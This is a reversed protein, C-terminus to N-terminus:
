VFSSSTLAPTLSRPTLFVIAGGRLERATVKFAPYHIVFETLTLRAERASGFTQIASRGIEALLARPYEQPVTSVLVQGLSDVTFSGSPLRNVHSDRKRSFLSLIDM